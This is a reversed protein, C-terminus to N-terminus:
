PCLKVLGYSASCGVMNLCTGRIIEPQLDLDPQELVVLLSMGLKRGLDVEVRVAANGMLILLLTPQHCYRSTGLLHRSIFASYDM